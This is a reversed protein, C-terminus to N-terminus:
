RHVNKLCYDLLTGDNEKYLHVIPGPTVTHARSAKGKNPATAPVAELASAGGQSSAEAAPARAPSPAAAPKPPKGSATTGKASGASAKATATATTGKGDVPVTPNDDPLPAAVATPVSTPPNVPRNARTQASATTASFGTSPLQLHTNVWLLLQLPSDCAGTSPVTFAACVDCNELSNV